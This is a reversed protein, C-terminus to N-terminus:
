QFGVGKGPEADVVKIAEVIAMDWATGAQGDKGHYSGIAEFMSRFWKEKEAATKCESFQMTTPVIRFVSVDDNVFLDEDLVAFGVEFSLAIQVLMEVWLEIENDKEAQMARGYADDRLVIFGMADWFPVLLVLEELSMTAVTGDRNKQKRAPGIPIRQRKDLPSKFFSAKVDRCPPDRLVRSLLRMCAQIYQFRNEDLQLLRQFVLRLFRTTIKDAATIRKKRLLANIKRIAHEMKLSTDLSIKYDFSVLNQIALTADVFVISLFGTILAVLALISPFIQLNDFLPMTAKAIPSVEDIMRSPAANFVELFCLDHKLIDVAKRKTEYDHDILVASRTKGLCKTDMNGDEIAIDHKHDDQRALKEVNVERDATEESAEYATASSTSSGTESSVGDSPGPQSRGFMAKQLKGIAFAPAAVCSEIYLSLIASSLM